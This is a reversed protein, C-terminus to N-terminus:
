CFSNWAHTQFTVALEEVHVPTRPANGVVSIGQASQLDHPQQFGASQVEFADDTQAHVFSIQRGRIGNLRHNRHVQAAIQAQGRRAFFLSQKRVM